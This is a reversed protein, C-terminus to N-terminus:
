RSNCFLISNEAPNNEKLQTQEQMKISTWLKLSVWPQVRPKITKAYMFICTRRYKQSGLVVYLFKVMIMVKEELELSQNCWFYNM